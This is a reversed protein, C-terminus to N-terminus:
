FYVSVPRRLDLDGGTVGYSLGGGELLLTKLGAESLRSAVTFPYYDVFISRRRQIGVDILVYWCYWCSWSRCYYCGM